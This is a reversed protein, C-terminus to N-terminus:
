VSNYNTSLQMNRCTHTLLHVQSWPHKVAPVMDLAPTTRSVGTKFSVEAKATKLPRLILKFDYSAFKFLMFLLWGYVVTHNLRKLQKLSTLFVCASLFDMIVECHPCTHPHLLVRWSWFAVKIVDTCTLIILVWVIIVTKGPPRLYGM